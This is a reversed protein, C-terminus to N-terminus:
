IGLLEGACSSSSGLRAVPNDFHFLSRDSRKLGDKQRDILKCLAEMLGNGANAAVGGAIRLGKRGDAPKWACLSQKPSHLVHLLPKSLVNREGGVVPLRGARIGM